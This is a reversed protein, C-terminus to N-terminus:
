RTAGSLLGRALVVAYRTETATANRFTIPRDLRMQLCDGAGLRHTDDGFTLELDGHLVWVAQDMALPVANDYTVAVGPPM